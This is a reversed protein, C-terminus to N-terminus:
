HTPKEDRVDEKEGEEGKIGPLRPKEEKKSEETPRFPEVAILRVQSPSAKASDVVVGQRVHVMVPVVNTKVSAIVPINGNVTALVDGFKMDSVVEARGSVEIDVWRPDAQWGSPTGTPQLIVIPIHEVKATTTENIIKVTVAMDEPSVQANPVESPPNLKVRTSFTRTRGGVDIPDPQVLVNTVNIPSLLRRSGKVDATAQDYVLSVRGRAHGNIVPSAVKLTIRMPRDLKVDVHDPEIKLVRARQFGNLNSRGLKMTVTDLLAGKNQRPRILCKVRREDIQSVETFSGRFVVQVTAPEISEVVAGELDEAQMADRDLEVPFTVVRVHSIESRIAFYILVAAALSFLKWWGNKLFLMKLWLMWDNLTM